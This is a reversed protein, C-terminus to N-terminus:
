LYYTTGQVACGFNVSSLGERDACDRLEKLIILRPDQTTSTLKVHVIVVDLKEIEQGIIKYRQHLVKLINVLHPPSLHGFLDTGEPMIRSSCELIFGKLQSASVNNTLYTWLKDFYEDVCGMEADNELDGCVVLSEKTTKDKLLYATSFVNKVEHVGCGHNVKFPIIEWNFSGMSHPICEDLTELGIKSCKLKELSPWIVDNFIHTKLANTTFELGYIVKKNNAKNEFIFPSNIILGSIHDLHPHTVFYGKIGNYILSAREWPNLHSLENILKAKISNPLGNSHAIGKENFLKRELNGNFHYCDVLSEEPKDSKAVMELIAGLGTGGDFCISDFSSSGYPRIMFSQCDHETPGGSGGLITIEFSYAM